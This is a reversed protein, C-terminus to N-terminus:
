GPPPAPRRGLLRSAVIAALLTALPAALPAYWGLRLAVLAAPSPQWPRSRGSPRLWRARGRPLGPRRRRDRAAHGSAAGRAGAGRSSPHARGPRPRPNVFTRATPPEWGALSVPQPVRDDPGAVPAVFVVRGKFLRALAKDDRIDLLRRAPIYRYAPGLAYDVFGEDCRGDLVQCIWGATTPWRGQQTPLALVIRRVVGDEDRPLLTFVLARTDVGRLLAEHIPVVERRAGVTMGVALPAAAQAVSLATALADDLGPVAEELSGQPLPAHLVIARPGGRAVRVLVEPLKRLVPGSPISKPRSRAPTTWGWSWSTTPRRSEPSPACCASGTDLMALSAREAWPSLHFALGALALAAAALFAGLPTARPETPAPRSMLRM